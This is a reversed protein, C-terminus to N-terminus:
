RSETTSSAAQGAPDSNYGGGQSRQEPLPPKSPTVVVSWFMKAALFRIMMSYSRFEPSSCITASVRNANRIVQYKSRGTVEVEIKEAM